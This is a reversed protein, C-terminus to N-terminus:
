RVLTVEHIDLDTMYALIAVHGLWLPHNDSVVLSAPTLMQVATLEFSQSADIGAPLLWESWSLAVEDEVDFKKTSYLIFDDSELIHTM